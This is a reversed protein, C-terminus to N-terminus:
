HTATLLTEGLNCLGAGDSGHEDELFTPGSQQSLYPASSDGSRACSDGEFPTTALPGAAGGSRAPLVNGSQTGVNGVKSRDIFRQQGLVGDQPGLEGLMADDLVREPM